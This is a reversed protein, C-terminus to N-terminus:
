TKVRLMMWTGGLGFILNPFWAAVIPSLRNIDGLKGFLEFTSWYLIGLGICIGIGYFAGKRGTKFSFPIGILVMIFSVLPYSLKRYLDLTLSTVDFHKKQLEDIYGKLEGYSMQSATRVEDKFYGPRDMNSTVISPILQVESNVGDDAM